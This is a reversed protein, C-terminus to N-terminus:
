KEMENLAPRAPTAVGGVLRDIDAATRHADSLARLYQATAQFLTRQADLVDLFGFKGFEFGTTAADYASQAGPLIDTQYLEAQQRAARLSEYLQALDSKLRVETVVLEDQAKYSRSIAEQLNGQNRDFLPLPISVGVIAQNRGLQEDRMAGVSVTIDPIQRSREVRTLARRRDVEIRARALNPSQELRVALADWDPVVPMDNVSGDVREFRAQRAGWTAALRSRATALESQAQALEIQVGSQAVRARTEELPSVKGAMVRKSAATTARKALEASAQALRLREQASLVDYFAATVTARIDTRKAEWEAIALDHARDAAAIRASRKGGLELQQNIQVTTTRTDRYRTDEVQTSLVPNPIVGAQRLAGESAEVEHVAMAIESNTRMALDIAMARTVVGTTDVPQDANVHLPAINNPSQALSALPLSLLAAVGLPLLLPHM